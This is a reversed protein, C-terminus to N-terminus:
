YDRGIAIDSWTEGTDEGWEERPRLLQGSLNYIRGCRECDSGLDIGGQPQLLVTAGCDCQLEAPETYRNVSEQVGLDVIRGDYEGGPQCANWNALGPPQLEELNVNGNEDSPFSFGAGPQDVWEYMRYYTTTTVRESRKIIHAM